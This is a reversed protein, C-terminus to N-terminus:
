RFAAPDGPMAKRTRGDAMVFWTGGAIPVADMPMHKGHLTLAWIIDAGCSRCTAM